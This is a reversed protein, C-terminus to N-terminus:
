NKPLKPDVKLGFAATSQFKKLESFNKILRKDGLVKLITSRFQHLYTV